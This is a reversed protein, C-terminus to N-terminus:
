YRGLFLTVNILFVSQRRNTNAHEVNYLGSRPLVRPILDHLSRTSLHSTSNAAQHFLKVTNNLLLDKFPQVFNCNCQSNRILRHCRKLFNDIKISVNKPLSAFLPSSYCLLNLILSKYVMILEKDHLIPKLIRLAYVHLRRNCKVVTRRFHEKWKLDPTLTIGLLSIEDVNQVDQISPRPCHKSKPCILLKSKTTNLVLDINMCALKISNFIDQLRSQLCNDDTIKLILSMDDAYKVYSFDSDRLLNSTYLIFLYPRIISGQPVGSSVLTTSSFINNIKTRQTRETLYSSIWSVFGRPLDLNNMKNVLRRHSITDFAKSFDLSLVAAGVSNDEELIATLRYLLHILACTTSSQPLYAFQSEDIHRLFFSKTRELIIKEFIKSPLPLLSIPRLANLSPPSRKRSPVFTQLNGCNQCTDILFAATISTVCLNLVSFLASVICVLLFVTVVM